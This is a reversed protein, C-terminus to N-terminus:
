IGRDEGFPQRKLDTITERDLCCPVTGRCGTKIVGEIDNVRKGRVAKRAAKGKHRGLQDIPELSETVIIAHRLLGNGAVVGSRAGNEVLIQSEVGVLDLIHRHQGAGQAALKAKLNSRGSFSSSSIPQSSRDSAVTNQSIPPKASRPMRSDIAELKHASTSRLRQASPM